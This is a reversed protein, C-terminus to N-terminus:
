RLTPAESASPAPCPRARRIFRLTGDQGSIKCHLLPRSQGTEDNAAFCRYTLLQPILGVNRPGRPDLRQQGPATMPPRFKSHHPPSHPADPPLDEPDNVKPRRLVHARGQRFRVELVENSLITCDVSSTGSRVKIKGEPARDCTLTVGDCELPTELPM